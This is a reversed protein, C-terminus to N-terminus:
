HTLTAADWLMSWLDGRLCMSSSFTRFRRLIVLVHCFSVFHPLATPFIAWCVEKVRPQWLGETQSFYFCVFLVGNIQSALLDRQAQMCTWKWEDLQQFKFFIRSHLASQHSCSTPLPRPLLSTPTALFLRCADRQASADGCNQSIYGSSSSLSPWRPQRWPRRREPARVKRPPRQPALRRSSDRGSVPRSRSEPCAM